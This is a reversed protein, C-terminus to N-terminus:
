ESVIYTSPSTAGSVTFVIGIGVSRAQVSFSSTVPGVASAAGSSTSRAIPASASAPMSM